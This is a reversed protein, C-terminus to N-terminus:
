QPNAYWCHPLSLSERGTNDYDLLHPFDSRYAADQIRERRLFTFEMVPPIEIGAVTSSGCCNNPHIHVCAHTQLIKDFASAALRFFPRSWLQDLSHFEVVITRFRKMLAESTSLLVEYEYGEIDMQLLLESDHEPLSTNVWEDLTMFDDSATAGLYKKSFHFARDPEAPGDVSKDALFVKMGRNACDKEFGSVDSVGPSFCASVNTLDDPVVYGGDGNPGLRILPM